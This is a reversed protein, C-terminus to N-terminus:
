ANYKCLGVTSSVVSLAHFRRGGTTREEAVYLVNLFVKFRM